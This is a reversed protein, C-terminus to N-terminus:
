GEDDSPHSPAFMTRKFEELKRILEPDVATAEAGEEVEALAEEDGQEPTVSM